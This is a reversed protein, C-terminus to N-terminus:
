NEGQELYPDIMGGENVELVGRLPINVSLGNPIKLIFHDTTRKRKNFIWTIQVPSGLYKRKPFKNSCMARPPIYSCSFTVHTKEAKIIVDHVAANTNNRLVIENYYYDTNVVSACASLAFM